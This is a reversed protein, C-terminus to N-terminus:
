NPGLSKLLQQADAKSDFPVNVAVVQQLLTKAEAAQNSKSLAVALHYKINPDNPLGTSATRLLKVANAANGEATMIWGLTDAIAPSPAIKYAKEAVGRGRPDKTTAYVWALNNLIVPDDPREAALKEFQVQAASNNQMRGYLEALNMRPALDTPHAKTWGELVTAAKKPEKNREYLQALEIVMALSPAAAQSKEMLAIADPRKGNRDLVEAALLDGTPSEPDAKAFSKAAAFAADPGKVEYTLQVLLGKLQDNKPDLTLAKNLAALATPYDRTGAAAMAYNAQLLASTPFARAADRYTALSNSSDGSAGYVRGLAERADANTPFATVVARAEKIADPWKKQTEYTNILQLRPLPDTPAVGAARTLLRAAADYDQDRVYLEALAEMGDVDNAEKALRDQYVKKADAPRKMAVYIQSLSRRAGPQNADKDLIARFIKEAAPLNQQAIRTFGLLQQYYINNPDQKILAEAATAAQDNRGARLSALVLPPGAMIGGADSKFVDVLESIGAGTDGSAYRSIARQTKL